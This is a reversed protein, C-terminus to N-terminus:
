GSAIIFLTEVVSIFIIYSKVLYIFLMIIPIVLVPLLVAYLMFLVLERHHWVELPELQLVKYHHNLAELHALM